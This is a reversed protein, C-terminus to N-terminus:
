GVDIADGVPGAGAVIAPSDLSLSLQVQPAGEATPAKLRLEAMRTAQASLRDMRELYVELSLEGRAYGAEVASVQRQWLVVADGIGVGREAARELEGVVPEIPARALAVVQRRGYEEPHRRELLWAAAQWQGDTAAKQIKALAGITSKAEAEKLAASLASFAAGPRLLWDRLTETSIGAYECAARRTAGLSLAQVLKAQTDPTLKCPRGRKSM